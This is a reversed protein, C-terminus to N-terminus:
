RRQECNIKIGINYYPKPYKFTTLRVYHINNNNKQKTNAALNRKNYLAANDFDHGVMCRFYDPKKFM